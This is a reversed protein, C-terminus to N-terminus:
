PITWRRYRTCVSILRRSTYLAPLELGTSLSDATLRFYLPGIKIANYAVAVVARDEPLQSM